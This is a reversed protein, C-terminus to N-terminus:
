AVMDLPDSGENLKRWMRQLLERREQERRGPSDQAQGQSQRDDSSQNQSQHNRPAQEVHLKDVAVGSNELTTRLEGLSHSLLRTAQDSTTEFSANMVGDRMQVAVQIAGLEPPNLRIQMTGGNPLLNTRVSTVINAHNEAAFARESIQAPQAPATVQTHAIPAPKAADILSAGREGANLDVHKAQGNSPEFSFQTATFDTSEGDGDDLLNASFQFSSARVDGESSKREGDNTPPEDTPKVAGIADTRVADPARDVNAPLQNTAAAPERPVFEMSEPIEMESDAFAETEDPLPLEFGVPAAADEDDFEAVETDEVEPSQLVLPPVDTADIPAVDDSAADDAKLTAEDTTTVPAPVGVAVGVNVVQEATLPDHTAPKTTPAEEGDGEVLETVTSAEDVAQTLEPRKKEVTAACPPENTPNAEDAPKKARTKAAPTRKGARETKKPETDDTRKPEENKSSNRNELIQDFSSPELSTRKSAAVGRNASTIKASAQKSNSAEATRM